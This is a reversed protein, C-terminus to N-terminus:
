DAAVVEVMLADLEPDDSLLDARVALDIRKCALVVLGAHVVRIQGPL